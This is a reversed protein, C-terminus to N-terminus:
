QPPTEIQVAAPDPAAATTTPEATFTLNHSPLTGLPTLIKSPSSMFFNTEPTLCMSLIVTAVVIAAFLLQKGM